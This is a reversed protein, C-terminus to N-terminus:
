IENGGTGKLLYITDLQVTNAVKIIEDRKVNNIRVLVDDISESSGLIVRNMYFDETAHLSDKTSGMGTEIYKKASAIEEDSFEGKKMKDLQAMIEDYAADFKSAEIGSSIKMCGKHMNVKSFVYYALSLKERVNNFLKSFPSGGYICSFLLFASYEDSKPSIGCNFGMCLKSQSVPMEEVVNKVSIGDEITALATEITETKRDNLSKFAERLESEMKDKDFSGSAFIDIECNDILENYFSYLNKEDIGDLDEVYGYKFVGYPDGEFMVENARVRAYEKKDNVLGQIFSKLNEKEQAVFEPDFGGDATKPCLVYEKLVDVIEPMISGSIFSDAVYHVSFKILEIDGRKTIGSSLTAGYLEELRKSLQTMSPYKETGRKLVSPILAARTVTDRCLPLRIYVSILNTKFKDTGLMRLSVGKCLEINQINAM